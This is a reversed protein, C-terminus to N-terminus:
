GTPRKVSRVTASESIITSKMSALEQDAPSALMTDVSLVLTRTIFPSDTICERYYGGPAVLQTIAFSIM